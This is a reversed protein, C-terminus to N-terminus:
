EFVQNFQLSKWNIFEQLPAVLLETGDSLEALCRLQETTEPLIFPTGPALCPHGFVNEPIKKNEAEFQRSMRVVMFYPLYAVKVM